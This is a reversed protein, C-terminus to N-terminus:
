GKTGYRLETQINTFSRIGNFPDGIVSDYYM